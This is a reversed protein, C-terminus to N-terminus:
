YRTLASIASKMDILYLTRLKLCSAPPLPWSSIILNYKLRPFVATVEVAGKAEKFQPHDKFFSASLRFGSAIGIRAWTLHYQKNAM